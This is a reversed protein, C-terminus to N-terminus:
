LNGGVSIKYLYAATIDIADQRSFGGSLLGRFFEHFGMWAETLPDPELSSFMKAADEGFTNRLYDSLGDPTQDENPQENESM